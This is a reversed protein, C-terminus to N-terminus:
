SLNNITTLLPVSGSIQLNHEDRLISAELRSEQKQKDVALILLRRYIGFFDTFMTMGRRVIDKEGIEFKQLAVQTDYLVLGCVTFLSLYVLTKSVIYSEEFINAFSIVLLTLLTITLPMGMFIWRDKESALACASLSIFITLTNTLTSLLIDPEEKLATKFLDTVGIGSFGAFGLLYGLRWVNTNCENPTLIMAKEFPHIYEVVDQEDESVWVTGSPKEKIVKIISRAVYDPTQLKCDAIAKGLMNAFIENHANDVNNLIATKSFGPAVAVVKIGTREYHQQYGFGKTLVAVGSKTAAYIPAAEFHKVALISALLLGHTVGILNVEIQKVYNKDNFIGANNVLIDVNGFTALTTKFADEFSTKNTVDTEVFKLKEHGFEQGLESLADEALKADVDAITVGRAGERLLLKTTEFGIGGAGGTVIAVKGKILNIKIEKEYNKDDYIGANNVLIDINNFRELTQKFANEFSIKDSVDTKVFLIKDAGYKIELDELAKRGTKDNIDAVTVGKLGNNLLQRVTELGIGSAGGTVIAVKGEISFM